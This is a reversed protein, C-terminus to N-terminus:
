GVRGDGAGGGGCYSSCQVVVVGESLLPAQPPPSPPLSSGCSSLRTLRFTTFPNTHAHPVCHTHTQTYCFLGTISRCPLPLSPFALVCHVCVCVCVCVSISLSLSLSLCICVRACVRLCVCPRLCTYCRPFTAIRHAVCRARPSCPRHTVGHPRTCLVRTAM